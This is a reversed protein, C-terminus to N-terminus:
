KLDSSKQKFINPFQYIGSPETSNLASNSWKLKFILNKRYQISVSHGTLTM